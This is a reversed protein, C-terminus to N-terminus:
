LTLPTEPPLKELRTIATPQRLDQWRVELTFRVKDGVAFGRLDLGAAVGFPMTMADMGVRKGDDTTFDPIAEHRLWLEPQAAGAEPLRAIEGRVLYTQDAPTPTATKGCAFLSLVLVACAVVRSPAISM